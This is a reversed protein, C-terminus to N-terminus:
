AVSDLHLHILKALDDIVKKSSDRNDPFQKHVINALFAALAQFVVNNNRLSPQLKDVSQTLATFLNQGILNMAQSYDEQTLKDAPKTTDSATM